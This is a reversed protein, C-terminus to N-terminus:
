GASGDLATNAADIAALNLAHYLRESLQEYEQKDGDFYTDNWSGMGGFVWAAQAAALLREAALSLFGQPALDKHFVDALPHASSLCAVGREFCEAFSPLDHRRAFLSAEGLLPKLVEAHEELPVGQFKSVPQNWAIRAYTVNWLRKEPDERDGVRWAGEWCESSNSFLTDLRWHGGGGVFGVLMRDSVKPNGLSEWRIRYGTAGRAAQREYWTDPTDAFRVESPKETGPELLVFSIHKCFNCASSGPFFPASAHGRLIANGHIALALVQVISGQM